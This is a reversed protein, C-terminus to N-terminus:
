EEGLGQRSKGGAIKLLPSSLFPLHCGAAVM